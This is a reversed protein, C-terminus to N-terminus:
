FGGLYRLDITPKVSTEFKDLKFSGDHIVQVLARWCINSFNFSLKCRISVWSAIEKVDYFTPESPAWWDGPSESYKIQDKSTRISYASNSRYGLIVLPELEDVVIQIFPPTNDSHRGRDRIQEMFFTMVQNYFVRVKDLTLEEEWAQPDVVSHSSKRLVFSDQKWLNYLEVHKAIKPM